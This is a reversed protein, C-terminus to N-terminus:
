IFYLTTLGGNGAEANFHHVLYQVLLHLGIIYYLCIGNQM